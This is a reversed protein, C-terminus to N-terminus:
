DFLSTGTFVKKISNASDAANAVKSMTEAFDPIGDGDEDEALLKEMNDFRRKFEPWEKRFEKFEAYMEQFMFSQKAEEQIKLYVHDPIGYANTSPGTMTKRYPSSSVKPTIEVDYWNAGNHKKPNNSAKLRYTGPPMEALTASLRSLSEDLDSTEGNRRSVVGGDYLYWYPADDDRLRQLITTETYM